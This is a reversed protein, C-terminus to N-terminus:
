SSSSNKFFANTITTSQSKAASQADLMAIFSNTLRTRQDEIRAQLTEIQANISKTDKRVSEQQKSDNSKMDTLLSYMQPVMGKGGASFFSQVDDPHDSLAANLKGANKIVIHNTTGDFDLGLDDIDKISGVVDAVQNFAMNRLQRGWGQVEYNNALVAATVSTGTTTIKTSEDILDQVANFKDIFDQVATQMSSSDSQVTLTQTTESNATVSLGTIGHVSTDFTNTSSFLSPGDDVTFEANKGRSVDVGAVGLSTLLGGPDEVLGLGVDGTTKNTFVVRDNASDYTATVGANSNTVRSLVSSVSDKTLDYDIKVGNVYFSGNAAPLTGLGSDNLVANMKLVGLSGASETTATGNNALQMVQLFNSTDNAAGLLLKGTSSELKVHDTAPDYSGTVTGGTATSIKDFVAQLSDTSSIEVPKGNVTFTSTGTTVTGATRMTALTLGTVDSSSSLGKAINSTGVLKAATALQKVTFKYSGIPAGSASASKWTSTADSSTVAREMFTNNARIGQLSDQLSQLATKIDDLASIKEDNQAIDKKLNTVPVQEIAILQDVVSKWDFASDSLLGSIQIGM